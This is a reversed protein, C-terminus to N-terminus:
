TTMRAIAGDRGAWFSGKTAGNLTGSILWETSAKHLVVRQMEWAMFHSACEIGLFAKNRTGLAGYLAVNSEYLRDYEGAM